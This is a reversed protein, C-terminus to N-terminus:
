ENPGKQIAANKGHFVESLPSNLVLLKSDNFHSPFTLSKVGNSECHVFTYYAANTQNNEKSDLNLFKVKQVTRKHTPTTLCPYDAFKKCPCHSSKSERERERERERPRPFSPFYQSSSVLILLFM